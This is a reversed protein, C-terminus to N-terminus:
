FMFMNLSNINHHYNKERLFIRRALVGAMDPGIRRGLQIAERHFGGVL